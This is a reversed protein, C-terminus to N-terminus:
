YINKSWTNKKLESVNATVYVLVGLQLILQVYGKYLLLTNKWLFNRLFQPFSNNCTKKTMEEIQVASYLKKDVSVGLFKM